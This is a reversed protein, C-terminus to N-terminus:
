LIRWGEMSCNCENSYFGCAGKLCNGENSYHWLIWWGGMLCKCESSNFGGAARLCHCESRDFGGARRWGIRESSYFRGAGRWLMVCDVRQSMVVPVWGSGVRVDSGERSEIGLWERESSCSAGGRSLVGGGFLVRTFARVM